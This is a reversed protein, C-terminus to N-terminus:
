VSLSHGELTKLVRGTSLDWWKLTNDDSGSLATKGDPSFAVSIVGSIHGVQVFVEDVEPPAVPPLHVQQLSSSKVNDVEPQEVPPSPLKVPQSDSKKTATTIPPSPQMLLWSVAVGILLM